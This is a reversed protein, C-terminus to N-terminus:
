LFCNCYLSVGSSQCDVEGFELPLFCSLWIWSPMVWCAFSLKTISLNAMFLYFLSIWWLCLLKEGMKWVNHFVVEPYVWGSFCWKCGFMCRWFQLFNLEGWFYVWVYSEGYICESMFSIERFFFALCVCELFGSMFSSEWRWSFLSWVQSSWCM